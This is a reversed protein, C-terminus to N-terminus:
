LIVIVKNAKLKKVYAKLTAPHDKAQGIQSLIESTIREGKGTLVLEVRQKVNDVDGATRARIDGRKVVVGIVDPSLPDNRIVVLDKGFEDSGHTVEVWYEAHMARFLQALYGHLDTEPIEALLRKREEKPLARAESKLQSPTIM